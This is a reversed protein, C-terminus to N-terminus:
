LLAEVLLLKIELEDSIWFRGGKNLMAHFPNLLAFEISEIYENLFPVTLTPDTELTTYTALMAPEGPELGLELDVVGGRDRDRDIVRVREKGGDGLCDFGRLFISGSTFVLNLFRSSIHQDKSEGM